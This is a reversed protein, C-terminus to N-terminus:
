KTVRVQEQMLGWLTLWDYQTPLCKALNLYKGQAM